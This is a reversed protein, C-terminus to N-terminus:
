IYVSKYMKRKLQTHTYTQTYMKVVFHRINTNSGMTDVFDINCVTAAVVFYCLPLWQIYVIIRHLRMHHPRYRSYVWLLYINYLFSLTVFVWKMHTTFWSFSLIAIAMGLHIWHKRVYKYIITCTIGVTPQFFQAHGFEYTHAHKHSNDWAIHSNFNFKHCRCSDWLDKVDNVYEWM